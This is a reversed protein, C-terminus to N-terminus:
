YAEGRNVRPAPMRLRRMQISRNAGYLLVGRLPTNPIREAHVKKYGRWMLAIDLIVLLIYGYMLVMSLVTAYRWLGQAFTLALIVLLGPLLFEGLSRRADVHDRMLAKEPTGDRQAMASMRQQRNASTARRRAEKKTLTPNLRERRAAEAQRRTPTPTGKKQAGRQPEERAGDPQSAEPESQAPDDGGRYSKFLPFRAM